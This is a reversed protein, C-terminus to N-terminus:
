AIMSREVRDEPLRESRAGFQMRTRKLLLHRVQDSQALLTDRASVPADREAIAALALARLAAAVEPLSQIYVRQSDM